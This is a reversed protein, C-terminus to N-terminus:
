GPRGVFLVSALLAWPWPWRRGMLALGTGATALVTAMWDPEATNIPSILLIAGVAVIAHLGPQRVGYARLGQWLLSGRASPWPRRWCECRSSLRPRVSRCPTLWGPFGDM